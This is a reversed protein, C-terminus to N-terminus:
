YVLVSDDFNSVTWYTREMNITTKHCQFQNQVTDRYFVFFFVQHWHLEYNRDNPGLISNAPCYKLTALFLAPEADNAMKEQLISIKRGPVLADQIWNSCHKKKKPPPCFFGIM